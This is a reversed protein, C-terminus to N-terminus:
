VQGNKQEIKRENNKQAAAKSNEVLHNMEQCAAVNIISRGIYLKVCGVMACFVGSSRTNSSTHYQLM